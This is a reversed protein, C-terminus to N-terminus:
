KTLEQLKEKLEQEISKPKEGVPEPTAVQDDFNEAKALAHYAQKVRPFLSDVRGKDKADAAAALDNVAKSLQQALYYPNQGGASKYGAAQKEAALLADSRLKMAPMLNRVIGYRDKQIFEHTQQMVQQFDMLASTTKAKGQGGQGKGSTVPNMTFGADLGAEGIDVVSCRARDYRVILLRASPDAATELVGPVAKVAAELKQAQGASNMEEVRYTVTRVTSAAAIGVALLLAAAAIPIRKRM